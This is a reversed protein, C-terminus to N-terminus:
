RLKAGDITGFQEIAARRGASLLGQYTRDGRSACELIRSAVYTRAEVSAAPVHSCVEDLVTRMANITTPDFQNM